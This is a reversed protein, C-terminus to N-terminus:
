GEGGVARSWFAATEPRIPRRGRLLHTIRAELVEVLVGDMADPMRARLSARWEPLFDRGPELFDALYLARGLRGFGPHGVTHYRIAEQLEADAGEGLRQAVAPGHLLLDPFGTFEEPVARRLSGPEADRLADHLWAAAQWRTRERPSLGLRDAWDLMLEAVRAIHARREAGAVAWEPLEGRGAAEVDAAASRETSDADSM